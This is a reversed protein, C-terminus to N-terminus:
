NEMKLHVIMPQIPSYMETSLMGVPSPRTKKERRELCKVSRNHIM